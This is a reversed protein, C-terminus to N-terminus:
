SQKQSILFDYPRKSKGKQSLNAKVLTNLYKICSKKVSAELITNQTLSKSSLRVNYEEM